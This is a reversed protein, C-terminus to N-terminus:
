GEPTPEVPPVPPNAPPLTPLQNPDPAPEPTPLLAPDPTSTPTPVTAPDPTPANPDLTPVVTPAVARTTSITAATETNRFYCPDFDRGAVIRYRPGDESPQSVIQEPKLNFARQLRPTASGKTTTNFDIVQTRTVPEDMETISVVNFELERLRDVAPASFDDWGTGNYFAVTVGGGSQQNLPVNMAQQLYSSINARNPVLISGVEPLNMGTLGVGDFYRSLIITDDLQNAFTALSLIQQASLDTTVNRGFQEILTPLQAFFSLGNARAKTLMARAVKQTRRGRDIDGGPVGYRARAYALTQLGNLTYVGARPIWITQTPVAEGPQWVQGTFTDTYPVTVTLPTADNALYYPDKPFVQYLPCTAIVDIGGLTNVANVVASFNVSVFYDVNIGFNYKITQKFYDPGRPYATNVKGYRWNPLYVLTDRPISLLSIAPITPQISAIIIVDSNAGGVGPRIDEKSQRPRTDVGLLAINLTGAPFRIQAVPSPVVELSFQTTSTIGTTASPSIAPLLVTRNDM